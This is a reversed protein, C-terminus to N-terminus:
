LYVMQIHKIGPKNGNNLNAVSQALMSVAGPTKGMQTQHAKPLHKPIKM